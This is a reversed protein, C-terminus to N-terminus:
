SLLGLEALVIDYPMRDGYTTLREDIKEHLAAAAADARLARLHAASVLSTAKVLAAGIMEQKDAALDLARIFDDVFRYYRILARIADHTLVGQGLLRTMANAYLLTSPRWIPQKPTSVKLYAEALDAADDIEARLAAKVAARERREGAVKFAYSIFASVVSSTAISAILIFWPGPTNPMDALRAALNVAFGEPVGAGL